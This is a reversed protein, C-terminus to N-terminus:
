LPSGTRATSNWKYNSEFICKDSWSVLGNHIENGLELIVNYSSNETNAVDVTSM